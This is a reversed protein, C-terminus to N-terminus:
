PKIFLSINERKQLIQLKSLDLNLGQIIDDCKEEVYIKSGSRNIASQLADRESVLFIDTLAPQSASRRHSEGLIAGQNKSILVISENPSSTEKVFSVAKDVLSNPHTFANVNNSMQSGLTRTHAPFEIIWSCLFMLLLFACTRALTSKNQLLLESIIVLAPIQFILLGALNFNHSRGGYYGFSWLCLLGFLFLASSRQSPKKHQTGFYSRVFAAAGIFLSVITALAYLNWPHWTPTPLLAIGYKAFINLTVFALDLNPTKGSRLLLFFYFGVLIIASLLLSIATNKVFCFIKSLLLSRFAASTAAISASATTSAAAIAATWIALAIIGFEINIIIGIAAAIAGTILRTATQEEIYRIGYWVFFLPALTRLPVFQFYHDGIAAKWYLYAWFFSAGAGWIVSASSSCARRLIGIILVFNALILSAMIVTFAAVGGGLFSVFPALLHAYLGYTTRFGDVLLTEGMQVQGVPYYLVDFHYGNQANMRAAPFVAYLFITITIIWIGFRAAFQELIKWYCLLKKWIKRQPTFFRSIVVAAYLCIAAPFCQSWLTSRFYTSWNSTPKQEFYPFPDNCFFSALALAFLIMWPVFTVINKTKLSAKSFHKTVLIDCIPVAILAALPFFLAAFVVLSQEAPKPNAIKLIEPLVKYFSLTSSHPYQFILAGTPIFIIFSLLAALSVSLESNELVDYNQTANAFNIKDTINQSEPISNM